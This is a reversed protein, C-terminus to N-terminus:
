TEVGKGMNDKAFAILGRLDEANKSANLVDEGILEIDDQKVFIGHRMQGKRDKIDEWAAQLCEQMTLNSLRAIQQLVVYMDGISDRILPLDNKDIGETLEDFEERLKKLQAGASAGNEVTIGRDVGWQYINSLLSELGYSFHSLDKAELGKDIIQDIISRCEMRVFDPTKYTGEKFHDTKDVESLMLDNYHACDFGIWWGECGRLDNGSFTLGGHCNILLGDYPIGHLVHGEPIRVYGNNHEGRIEIILYDMGRYTNREVVKYKHYNDTM